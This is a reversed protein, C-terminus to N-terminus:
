EPQAEETPQVEAGVGDGTGDSDSESPEIPTLVYNKDADRTITHTPNLERDLIVWGDIKGIGLATYSRGGDYRCLDLEGDGTVDYRVVEHKKTTKGAYWIEYVDVPHQLEWIDYEAKALRALVDTQFVDKAHDAALAILENREDDTLHGEIWLRSIKAEMDDLVYDGRMIVSEVYSKYDIM